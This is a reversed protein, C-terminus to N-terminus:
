RCFLWSLTEKSLSRGSFLLYSRNPSKCRISFPSILSLSFSFSISGVMFRGYIRLPHLSWSRRSVMMGNKWIIQITSIICDISIWRDSFSSFDPLSISFLPVFVYWLTAEVFVWWV